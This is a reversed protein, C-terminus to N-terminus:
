AGIVAVFIGPISLSTATFAIQGTTLFTTLTGGVLSGIIGLLITGVWGGGGRAGPDVAKAIAGARLGIKRLSYNSLCSSSNWQRV